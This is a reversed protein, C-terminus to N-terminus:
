PPHLGDGRVRRCHKEDKEEEEGALKVQAKMGCLLDHVARSDLRYM